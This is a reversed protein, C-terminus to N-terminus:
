STPFQGHIQLFIMNMEDADAADAHATDGLQQEVQAVPHGTGIHLGRVDGGGPAVPRYPNVDAVRGFLHGTGIHHHYRRGDVSSLGSTSAARLRRDRHDRPGFHQGLEHPEFVAHGHGSGVALGGGGGDHGSDQGGAAKSGVMTIPPLSILRSVL